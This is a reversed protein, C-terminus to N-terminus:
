NVAMPHEHGLIVPPAKAALQNQALMLTHSQKDLLRLVDMLKDTLTPGQFGRGELLGFCTYYEKFVDTTM